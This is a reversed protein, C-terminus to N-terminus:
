IEGHGPGRQGGLKSRTRSTLGSGKNAWGVDDVRRTIQMKHEQDSTGHHGRRSLYTARAAIPTRDGLRLMLAM